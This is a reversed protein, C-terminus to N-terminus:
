RAPGGTAGVSFARIIYHGSASVLVITVVGLAALAGVRAPGSAGNISGRFIWAVGVTAIVIAGFLMGKGLLPFTAKPQRLLVIAGAAAALAAADVLRVLLLPKLSWGMLVRGSGVYGLLSGVGVAGAICLLTMAPGDRLGKMASTMGMVAAVLIVVEFGVLYWSTPENLLALALVALSSMGTAGSVAGFALRFARRDSLEYSEMTEM